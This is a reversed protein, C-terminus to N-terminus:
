RGLGELAQALRQYRKEEYRTQKLWDLAPAAATANRAALAAELIILADRPERQMQKWNLLALELAKAADGRLELEFRAEEALHLRDGRRASDAFRDALAKTHTAAEPLGLEKAALALRLLLIDSRTWGSLLTMVEKPRKQELLLDAYAGLVYGDTVGTAMAQKFHREASAVNNTRQAIEGLRTHLWQRYDPTRNPDKSFASTLAAYATQSNGTVSDLTALCGTVSLTSAIPRRQECASRAKEYDAMVMYLAWKWALADLHGPNDRLVADLDELAGKFDHRYQLILARAYRIDSPIDKAKSTWPSIASEAYGVYRPDGEAGALDIYKEAIALAKAPDNPSQALAERLQRLERAIPDTPKLPLRELVKSDDTPRYPAAGIWTPQLLLALTSIVVFFRSM